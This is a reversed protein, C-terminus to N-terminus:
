LLYGCIKATEEPSLDKFCHDRSINTESLRRAM